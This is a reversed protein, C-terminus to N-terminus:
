VSTESKHNFILDWEHPLFELTTINQLHGGRTFSSFEFLKRTTFSLAEQESKIKSLILRLQHREQPYKELNQELKKFYKKGVCFNFILEMWPNILFHFL